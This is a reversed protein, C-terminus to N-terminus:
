TMWLAAEGWCVAGLVEPRLYGLLLCLSREDEGKDIVRLEWPCRFLWISLQEFEPALFDFKMWLVV